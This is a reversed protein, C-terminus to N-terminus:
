SCNHSNLNKPVYIIKYSLAMVAIAIVHINQLQLILEQIIQNCALHFYMQVTSRKQKSYTVLYIYM